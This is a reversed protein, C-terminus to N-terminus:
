RAQAARLACPSIRYKFQLAYMLLQGIYKVPKEELFARFAGRHPSVEVVANSGVQRM